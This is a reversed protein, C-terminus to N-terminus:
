GARVAEGLGPTDVRCPVLHEGADWQEPWPVGPKCLRQDMCSKQGEWISGLWKDGRNEFHFIPEMHHCCRQKGKAEGDWGVKNKSLVQHTETATSIPQSFM